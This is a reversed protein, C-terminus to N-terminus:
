SYAPGGGAAAMRGRGQTLIEYHGVGCPQFVDAVFDAGKRL